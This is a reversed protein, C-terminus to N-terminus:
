PAVDSVVDPVVLGAASVGSDGQSLRSRLDRSCISFLSFSFPFQTVYALLKMTRKGRCPEKKGRCSASVITAGPTEEM